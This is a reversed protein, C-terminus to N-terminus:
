HSPPFDGVFFIVSSAKTSTRTWAQRVAFVQRQRRILARRSGAEIQESGYGLGLWEHDRGATACENRGTDRDGERAAIFALHPGTRTECCPMPEGHEIRGPRDIGIVAALDLHQQYIETVIETVIVRPM